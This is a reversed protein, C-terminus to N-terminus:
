HKRLHKNLHIKLLNHNPYHFITFNVTTSTTITITILILKKKFKHLFYMKIFKQNKRFIM